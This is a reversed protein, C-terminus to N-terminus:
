SAELYSDVDSGPAWPKAAYITHDRDFSHLSALADSLRM